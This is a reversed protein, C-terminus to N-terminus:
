ALEEQLVDTVRGRASIVTIAVADFGAREVDDFPLRRGGTLLAVGPEDPDAVDDREDLDTWDVNYAVWVAVEFTSEGDPDAYTAEAVRGSRVDADWEDCFMANYGHTAGDFLLIPDGADPVAYVMPPRGGDDDTVLGEFLEGHYRLRFRSMGDPTSLQGAWGAEPLGFRERDAAVTLGDLHLPGQKSM